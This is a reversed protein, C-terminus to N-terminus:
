ETDCGSPPWRTPCYCDTECSFIQSGGVVKQIDSNTLNRLTDRSLRLKKLKKVENKKM